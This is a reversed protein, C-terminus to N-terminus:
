KVLREVAVRMHQIHGDQVTVTLSDAEISADADLAAIIRDHIDTDPM